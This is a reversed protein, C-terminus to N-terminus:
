NKSFLRYISPILLLTIFTSFLLGSIIVIALPAQYGASMGTALALPLMGGITTLTTMFIPRIRNEGAQLLSDVIPMGEKRLQNTRDILLIANNLVIGVLIILGMGSMFNLEAQTIFLGVIVGVITVPITAMVILPQGLHNFQVAMVVYVLFLAIGFVFFLENMLQNQEELDGDLSVSYDLSGGFRDIVKQIEKNVTGLDKGEVDALISIYRDGQKHTIENPMQEKKFTIFSSLNKVGNETPIKVNLLSEKTYKENNQQAFVHLTEDEWEVTGVADRLLFSELKQKIQFVSIGANKMEDEKLHVVYNDSLEDLTNTVGVIGEISEIENQLEIAIKQLESFDEGSINVQVPYGSVGDLAKEVARIPATESLERLSTLIEETIIDQEKTIQNEKTMVINLMMAKGFDLIYNAEIDDMPSLKKNVKEVVLVKEKQSVGNELDIVIETYRNFMDPMINMPIKPVLFFSFSFVLFFVIIVLLSRSKKMICWSVIKKYFSLFISQKEKDKERSVKMFQKALTPILTFAIIVSSILTIAVVVSLILMFKGSDGGILGIPLFVVITTLVSAIIATAVEKTGMLVAEVNNLGQEKKRYISELIVISSDVMMGIGLGLGILTLLNVSYDLFGMVILTLLISTPISLGIIFTARINRLFLLLVVVAIVGGIIINTKVDDLSDNVFDAHAIVENVSFDEVLGEEKIKNIEYRVAETMDLQAVNAKRGVQVMIIDKTGNKWTNSSSEIDNTSVTAVDELNILGFETPIQMEKLDELNKITTDWQLSSSEKEDSLEGIIVEDNLQRVLEVVENITINKEELKEENFLIDVKQELLGTLMVERVEPLKELRPKLIDNAFATMKDMDGDSIDLILEFSTNAGERKVQVDNISPIKSLVVSAKSEVNKFLEDGRGNEFIIQIASRGSSTISSIEKIGEIEQLEQELLNTIKSEMEDVNLISSEVNITAGDLRVSPTLEKELHIFTYSGVFIIFITLLLVFVKRQVILQLLRM